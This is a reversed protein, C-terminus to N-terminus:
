GAKGMLSRSQTGVAGAVADRDTDWTGWLRTNTWEPREHELHVKRTAFLKCGQLRMQRSFDWDESKTQPAFTGDALKVIRDQQRFAVKECWSRDLRCLWLGTNLLLPGGVDNESFTEPLDFIEKLALRRPNWEDLGDVATSTLGRTDKIPVVASVADADNAELEAMLTDLWGSVPCVDDHIMAFYAIGDEKRRNLFGTWLNNFTFPLLSTSSFAPIIACKGNTAYAVGMAAVVHAHTGRLPMGVGVVPVPKDM